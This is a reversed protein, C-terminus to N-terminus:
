GVARMTQWGSSRRGVVAARALEDARENGAFGSHGPVYTLHVDGMRALARKVEAVLETNAKAKPQRWMDIHCGSLVFVAALAAAGILFPRTAALRTAAAQPQNTEKTKQRRM